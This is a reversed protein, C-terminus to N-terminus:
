EIGGLGQLYTTTVKLSEHGLSRRVAEIDHGSERYLKVAYAHRLGHASASSGIRKFARHINVSM